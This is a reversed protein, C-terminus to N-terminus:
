ARPIKGNEAAKYAQWIEDMPTAALTTEITTLVSEHYLRNLKSKSVQVEQYLTADAQLNLYWVVANLKPLTLDLRAALDSPSLTFGALIPAEILAEAPTEEVPAPQETPAEVEIIAKPSEEHVMVSSEPAEYPTITSIPHEAMVVKKPAEATLAMDEPRHPEDEDLRVMVPAKKRSIAGHGNSKEKDDHRDLPSRLKVDPMAEQVRHTVGRLPATADKVVVNMLLWTSKLFSKDANKQYHDLTATLGDGIKNAIRLATERM